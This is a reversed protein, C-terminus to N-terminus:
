PLRQSVGAAEREALVFLMLVGIVLGAILRVLSAFNLLSMEGRALPTNGLVIILHWLGWAFLFAGGVWALTLPIWFPVRRSAGHVMMLVGAAGAIMLGAELANNFSSAITRQAMLQPPVGIGAGLAWALNLGAVAAAMAAAAAALPAQVSHTRRRPSLRDAGAEFVDAWRVRAYLIFALMVGVGLGVFSAFVVTYVWPEVPGAVPRRISDSRLAEIAVVVPLQAVFRALLGTAVWMPPLVLWAPVKTGWRHTFALAMGIAVLDMGATLVNLAVMSADGMMREDAVGVDGGSLWMMKLALYPLAFAIAGYGAVVRALRLRGAALNM